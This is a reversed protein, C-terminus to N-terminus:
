TTTPSSGTTTTTSAGVTLVITTGKAQQTGGQPDQSIVKGVNEPTSATPVVVPNFGQNKLDAVAAAQTQGTVDDVTIMQPGTSVVITVSSGKPALTNPAPSTSIVDGQPVTQSAQSTSKVVFGQGALDAGANAATEGLVNDIKVPQPGSSVVLKVAFNRGVPTGVPPDTRIVTNAPVTDSPEPTVTGVKLGAQKLTNTADAVTTDTVDPVPIQGSGKSVQLTITSGKKARSGGAPSQSIVQNVPVTANAVLETKVAFGEDTLTQRAQTLDVTTVDPVKVTGSDKGNVSALYLIGGVAIVLVLFVVITTFL